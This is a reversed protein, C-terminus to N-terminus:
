KVYEAYRSEVIEAAVEKDMAVEQGVNYPLKFKGAPSLLFRIVDQDKKAVVGKPKGVKKELKKIESDKVKVLDELKLITADKEAMSTELDHIKSELVEVTNSVGEKNDSLSPTGVGQEEKIKEEAM